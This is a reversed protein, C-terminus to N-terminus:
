GLEEPLKPAGYLNVLGDLGWGGTYLQGDVEGRRNVFVALPKGRLINRM